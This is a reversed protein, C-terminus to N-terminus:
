GGLLSAARVTNIDIVGSYIEKKTFNSWNENVVLKIKHRLDFKNDFVIHYPIYLFPLFQQM